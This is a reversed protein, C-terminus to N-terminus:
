LISEVTAEEDVNMSPLTTWAPEGHVSQHDSADDVFRNEVADVDIAGREAKLAADLWGVAEEVHQEGGGAGDNLHGDGVGVLDRDQPEAKMEPEPEEEEGDNTPWIVLGGGCLRTVEGSPIDDCRKAAKRPRSGITAYEENPMRRVLARAAEPDQAQREVAAIREQLRRSTRAGAHMRRGSYHYMSIDDLVRAAVWVHEEKSMTHPSVRVPVTMYSPLTKPLPPLQPRLAPDVHKLYTPTPRLSNGRHRFSNHHQLLDKSTTFSKDCNQYACFLPTAVHTKLHLALKAKDSFKRACSLWECSFNDKEGAHLMTHEQLRGRTILLADCGRWLCRSERLRSYSLKVAETQLENERRQEEDDDVLEDVEISDSESSGTGQMRAERAKMRKVWDPLPPVVIEFAQSRRAATKGAGSSTASGHRAVQRSPSPAFAVDDDNDWLTQAKGKGKDQRSSPGAAPVVALLSTNLVFRDPNGGQDTYTAGRDHSTGPLDDSAGHSSSPSPLFLPTKPPVVASAADADPKPSTSRSHQSIAAVTTSETPGAEDDSSDFIEIVEYAPLQVSLAALKPNPTRLSSLDLPPLAALEPMRSSSSSPFHSPAELPTSVLNDTVLTSHTSEVVPHPAPSASRSTPPGSADSQPVSVPDVVSGQDVDLVDDTVTTGEHLDRGAISTTELNPVGMYNGTSPGATDDRRRSVGSARTLLEECERELAGPTKIEADIDIPEDMKQKKPSEMPSETDRKRKAPEAAGESPTMSKMSATPAPFPRGLSRMIDRALRSKDAKDPTWPKHPTRADGGSTGMPTSPAVRSTSSSPPTTPNRPTSPNTRSLEPATQERPSSQQINSWNQSISSNENAPSVSSLGLQAASLSQYSRQQTINPTASDFSPTTAKLSTSSHGSASSRAQPASLPIQSTYERPPLSDQSMLKSHWTQQPVQDSPKTRIANETVNKLITLMTARDMNKLYKLVHDTIENFIQLEVATHIKQGHHIESLARQNNGPDNMSLGTLRQFVVAVIYKVAAPRLDKVLNNIREIIGALQTESSRVVTPASPGQAASRPVDSTYTVNSDAGGGSGSSPGLAGNLASSTSAVTPQSQASFFTTSTSTTASQYPPMQQPHPHQQPPQSASPAQRPLDHYTSRWGRVTQPAQAHSQPPVQYQLNQGYQQWGQIPIQQNTPPTLSIPVNADQTHGRQNSGHASRFMTPNASQMQPSAVDVISASEQPPARNTHPRYYNNAPLPAAMGSSPEPGSAATHQATTRADQIQNLLLEAQRGEQVLRRLQQEKELFRHLGTENQSEFAEIQAKYFAIRAQNQAYDEPTVLVLNNSTLALDKYGPPPAQGNNM